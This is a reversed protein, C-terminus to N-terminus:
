LREGAIKQWLYHWVDYAGQLKLAFDRISDDRSIETRKLSFLERSSYNSGPRVSVAGQYGAAKVVEMLEPSFKGRPYSFWEPKVGTKERILGASGGIEEEAESRSIGTLERHSRSHSGIEIDSNKMERLMGWSLPAASQPRDRYRPLQVKGELLGTIVFVTAPLKREKLIPFANEYFDRYGDDFTLAVTPSASAKLSSPVQALPIVRYGRARLYDIQRIFESPRVSLRDGSLDLVRHYMLIRVGQGRLARFLLAAPLTLEPLFRRGLANVINLTM